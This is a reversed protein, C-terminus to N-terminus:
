HIISVFICLENGKGDYRFEFLPNLVVILNIDSRFL